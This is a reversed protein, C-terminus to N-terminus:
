DGIELSDEEYEQKDIDNKIDSKIDSNINSKIDSNSDTEIDSNLKNDSKDANDQNRIKKDFQSFAIVVASLGVLVKLGVLINFYPVTGANTPDQYHFINALYQPVFGYFNAGINYLFFGSAFLGVLGLGVFGLAGISEIASIFDHSFQIPSEEIGYVIICLIIGGAIMAGGQFGGGPTIHGGLITMIGLCVMVFAVPFAFLKLIPSM